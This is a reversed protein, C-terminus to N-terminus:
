KIEKIFIERNTTKNAILSGFAQIVCVFLLLVIVCANVIDQHRLGNGYNIAFDGLGGAGVAGAMATLGVLSIATLCTGRVLEPVAEHLSVRFIIGLNGVGMSRAAEIKGPDVNILASEVQRSYFPVTGFVLPIIAGKVGIATGVISRTFPVLFILLIIFPISRLVNILIDLVHFVVPSKRIGGDRTVSLVVGFFLGLVFSIIGSIFFMELTAVCNTLFKDRYQWVNPALTEFLGQM